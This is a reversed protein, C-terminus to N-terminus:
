SDRATLGPLTEPATLAARLESQFAYLGIGPKRRIPLAGVDRARYVRRETWDPGLFKAIASAGELYDDALDPIETIPLQATM